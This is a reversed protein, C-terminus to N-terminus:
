SESNVPYPIRNVQFRSVGHFPTAPHSVFRPFL